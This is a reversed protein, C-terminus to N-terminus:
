VSCLPENTITFEGNAIFLTLPGNSYNAEIQLCKNMWIEGFSFVLM